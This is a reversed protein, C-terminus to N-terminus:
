QHMQQEKKKQQKERHAQQIWAPTLGKFLMTIFKKVLWRKPYGLLKYGIRTTKFANWRVKLTRRKFANLDERMLYLPEQVNDAVFGNYYFKFWLDYDQARRTREAVTYGGCKDFVYRYGLITAHVFPQKKRLIWKDPRVPAPNIDGLGKENFHQMQCGVMDVDPHDKLFKMEKEFREPVSIDDGDMRGIYYGTAYELCHNLSYALYSNTENEIVKIKDPYKAEYEKAIALTGDTSADNCMILEWDTYTQALISDIAESLFKECNYIGMIISIKENKISTDTANM